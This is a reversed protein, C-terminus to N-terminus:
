GGAACPGAGSVRAGRPHTGPCHDPKSSWLGQSRTPGARVMHTHRVGGRPSGASPLLLQDVDDDPQSRIPIGVIDGLNGDLPGHLETGPEPEDLNDVRVQDAGVAVLGVAAGKNAVTAMASMSPGSRKSSGAIAKETAGAEAASRKLAADFQAFGSPQFKGGLIAYVSGASLSM